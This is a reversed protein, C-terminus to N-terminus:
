PTLVLLGQDENQLFEAIRIAQNRLLGEAVGTPYDCGRLWIVKPPPGFTTSLEYFDADATVIAFGRTKAYERVIIDPNQLLGELVVHPSGPFLDAIRTILRRSLNEDFLLKVFCRPARCSCPQGSRKGPEITIRTDDM